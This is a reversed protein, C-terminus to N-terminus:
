EDEEDYYWNKKDEPCEERMLALCRLISAEETGYSETQHECRSCTAQVSPIEGGHDGELTIEEVTCPVRAM